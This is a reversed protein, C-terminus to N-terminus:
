FFFRRERERERERLFVKCHVSVTMPKFWTAYAGSGPSRYDPIGSETSIGSGTLVTVTESSAILEALEDIEQQTAPRARPVVSAIKSPDGFVVAIKPAAPPAGRPPVPSRQQRQPLGRPTSTSTSSMSRRDFLLEGDLTIRERPLAAVAAVAVRASRATSPSAVLQAPLPALTSPMARLLLSLLM